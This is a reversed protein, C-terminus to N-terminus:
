LWAGVFNVPEEVVRVLYPAKIGAEKAKRHVELADNGSSVLRDGYLCVWQGLFESRHVELWKEAAKFLDVQEEVEKRKQTQVKKESDVWDFIKAKENLPLSRITEIVENATHEM